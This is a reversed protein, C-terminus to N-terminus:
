LCCNRFLIVTELLRKNIGERNMLEKSETISFTSGVMQSCSEYGLRTPLGKSVEVCSEHIPWISDSDGILFALPFTILAYHDTAM